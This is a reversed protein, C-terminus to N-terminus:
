PGPPRPVAQRLRQHLPLLQYPPETSPPTSDAEAEGEVPEEVPPAAEAEAQARRAAAEERLKQLWAPPPPAAPRDGAEAISGGPPRVPRRMPQAAATGAPAAHPVPTVPAPPRVPVTPTVPTPGAESRALTLATEEGNAFLTLTLTAPDYGRVEYEESPKGIEVWKGVGSRKDRVLFRYGDGLQYVGRFEYEAGTRAPTVPPASPGPPSWGPHIFPSRSLLSLGEAQGDSAPLLVAM